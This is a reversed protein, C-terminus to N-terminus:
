WLIWLSNSFVTAFLKRCNPTLTCDTFLYITHIWYLSLHAYISQSKLNFRVSSLILHASTKIGIPPSPVNKNVADLDLGNKGSTARVGTIPNLESGVRDSPLSMSGFRKERLGGSATSLIKFTLYIERRGHNNKFHQVLSRLTIEFPLKTRPNTHSQKSLITFQWLSYIQMLM